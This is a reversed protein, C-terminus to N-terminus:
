ENEYVRESESLLCALTRSVWVTVLTSVGVYEIKAEISPVHLTVITSSLHHRYGGRAPDVLPPPDPSSFSTISSPTSGNGGSILPHSTYM